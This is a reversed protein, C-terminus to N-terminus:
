MDAVDNIGYASIHAPILRFVVVNGPENLYDEAFVSGKETGYYRTAMGLVLPYLLQEVEEIRGRLIVSAYPPERRDVCLSAYPRGKINKWKTTKRDTFMYPLNNEWQYWIPVSHPCSMEDVTSIVAIQTRNLFSSIQKDIIVM